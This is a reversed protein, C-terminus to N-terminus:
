RPASATTPPPDCVVMPESSNVSVIVIIALLVTQVVAAFKLINVQSLLGDIQDQQRQDVEDVMQQVQEPSVVNNSYSKM